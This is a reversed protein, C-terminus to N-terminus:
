IKAPTRSVKKTSALVGGQSNESQERGGHGVYYKVKASCFLTTKKSALNRQEKPIQHERKTALPKTILEKSYM